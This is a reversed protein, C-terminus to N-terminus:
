DPTTPARVSAARVGLVSPPLLGREVYLPNVIERLRPLQFAFYGGAIAVAIGGLTVTLPAGLRHPEALFGAALAGLPMMGQFCMTFLSMVRGRKDDEVLTQLVTNASAVTIIMGLGCLILLAFSLWIATSQSFAILAAGFGVAGFCIWKGLGVPTSRAALAIAGAFAGIGSAASLFGFTTANGGLIDSSFVPLLVGYPAALLSVLALLTLTARIPPYGGAYVLGDKLDAFVNRAAPKKEGRPLKMLSFAILVAVFSTGDAFFCWGEGVLAILVGGIGPGLLRAANFMSSNLAIANPLDERKTVLQVVFAQRAPMDFGNILGQVVALTIIHWVEIVGTLTLFALTFSQVMSLTQTTMLVRRLNWRDIMVGAFPGVLFAPFLNCFAVTGLLVRSGTIRYVLWSLALSGLWTGILSLLQGGFFLAYNRNKFARFMFSLPSPKPPVSVDATPADPM